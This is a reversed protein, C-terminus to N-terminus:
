GFYVGLDRRVGEPLPRTNRVACMGLMLSAMSRNDEVHGVFGVFGRVRVRKSGQQFTTSSQLEHIAVPCNALRTPKPKRQPHKPVPQPTPQPHTQPDNSSSSSSSSSSIINTCRHTPANIYIVRKGPQGSNSHIGTNDTDSDTDDSSSSSSAEEDSDLDTTDTLEDDAWDYEEWCHEQEAMRTDEHEPGTLDYAEGHEDFRPRALTWDTGEGVEVRSVEFVGEEGATSDTENGANGGQNWAGVLLGETLQGGEGHKEADEIGLPEVGPQGSRGLGGNGVSAGRAVVLVKDEEPVDELFVARLSYGQGRYMRGGMRTLGSEQIELSVKGMTAGCIRWPLSFHTSIYKHFLLPRYAAQAPFDFAFLLTPTTPNHNNNNSNTSHSHHSYHPRSPLTQILDRLTKTLKVMCPDEADMISTDAIIIGAISPTITPNTLLTTLTEIPNHSTSITPITILHADRQLKSIISPYTKPLQHPTRALLILAPKPSYLGPRSLLPLSDEPEEQSSTSMFSSVDDQDQTDQDM